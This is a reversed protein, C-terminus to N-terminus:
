TYLIYLFIASANPSEREKVSFLHSEKPIKLIPTISCEMSKAIARASLGREKLEIVKRRHIFNGSKTKLAPRGFKVGRNMAQERGAKTRSNIMNREFEAFAGLIQLLLRGNPTTTDIGPDNVSIFGIGKQDLYELMRLLDSLSRAFRDIKAVVVIKPKTDLSKLMREFDPRQINKGSKARDEFFELEYGKSKAYKTIIGKQRENSGQRVEEQTSARVYGFALTM